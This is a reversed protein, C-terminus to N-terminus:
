ATIETLSGAGTQHDYVYNECGETICLGCGDKSNVTQQIETNLTIGTNVQTYILIFDGVVRYFLPIAFTESIKRLVYTSGSRRISIKAAGSGPIIALECYTGSPASVRCIEHYGVNSSSSTIESQKGTTYGAIGFRRWTPSNNFFSNAFRNILHDWTVMWPFTASTLSQITTSVGGTVFRGIRIQGGSRTSVIVADIRGTSVFWGDDWYVLNGIIGVGNRQVYGQLCSDIYINDCFLNGNTDIGATQGFYTNKTDPDSINGNPPYLHASTIRHNASLSHIGIAYGLVTLNSIESDNAGIDLIVGRSGLIYAPDASGEMYVNDIHACRSQSVAPRVHIGIHAQRITVDNVTVYGKTASVFDIATVNKSQCEIRFHEFRIDKGQADIVRFVSGEEINSIFVTAPTDKTYGNLAGVIANRVVVPNDLRYVGEPFYLSYSQTYANIIGSVDVTGDNKAGLSMINVPPYTHGAVAELQEVRGDISEIENTLNAVQQNFNGTEVWYTPNDSPNGVNPPVPIRSTYSNANWSVVTLAEYEVGSRWENTGDSNVYFFPVYRAGIYQLTAM